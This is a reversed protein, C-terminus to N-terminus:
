SINNWRNLFTHGRSCVYCFMTRRHQQSFSVQLQIRSLGSSLLYVWHSTVPVFLRNKILLPQVQNNNREWHCQDNNLVRKQPDELAPHPSCPPIVWFSVPFLYRLCQTYNCQNFPINCTEAEITKRFIKVREAPDSLVSLFLRKRACQNREQNWVSSTCASQSASSDVPRLVKM